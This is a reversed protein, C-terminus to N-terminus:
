PQAEVSSRQLAFRRQASRQKAQLVAADVPREGAFHASLAAASPFRFLDLPRAPLGFHEKLHQCLVVAKLSNGGLDFFNGNRPVDALSLVHQMASAIRQELQPRDFRELARRDAAGPMDLDEKGIVEVSEALAAARQGNAGARPQVITAPVGLATAGAPVDSLVLSNAAITAGAGIHLDPLISANSGVYVEDELVVRANIVANPAIVCGRGIRSGHGVVAGLLMVSSRAVSAEAGVSANAYITVEDDLQTGLLDVGPHVLSAFPVGYAAIKKRAKARGATTRTVLNVAEDTSRDADALCDFGGLVPLGLRETGHKARDDDLLVLRQWRGTARNVQLALRIGEGNGVGCLYLTRMAGDSKGTAAM